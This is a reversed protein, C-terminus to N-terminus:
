MQRAQGNVALAAERMVESLTPHAHFSRALDEASSSFEMAVVAEAIMDSARPGLIHVGLIQDTTSDALIKVSGETCNLAKARGNASFPFSGAKFKINLKQLEEETKGVSAMEPWTYVVSPVTDYNVHGAQGAIIEAVAVGEEEAKHALMPGPILDGIAFIHPIHTRFHADVLVFGRPDQKIGVQSLGLGEAHPKRGTAVLVVDAPIQQNKQSADEVKLLEYQVHLPATSPNKANLAAGSVKAELIFKMGQKALIQQLKKSLKLDMTGCIRDTYEIVTVDSGLRMWVSGLELGIVGGGVVVMKAPVKNLSLAETSSIIFQGDFKLSPLENPTSGTALLINKGTVRTKNGNPDTIEVEHDNQLTGMGRLSTIKNKKFLFAIGSTLDQVIKSKRSMMKALDLQVGSLIVGHQDMEEHAAYYHESSDLLAKSPICGVNLCTGGLTSEKEIVAVKLGLQAARIAAVYGGPGAGIIVLDFADNVENTDNAM